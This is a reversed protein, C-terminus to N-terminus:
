TRENRPTVNPLTGDALTSRSFFCDSHFTHNKRSDITQIRPLFLDQSIISDM